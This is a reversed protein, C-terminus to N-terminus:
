AAPLYRRAERILEQVLKLYEPRRIYEHIRGPEVWAHDNVEKGDVRVPTNELAIGFIFAIRQGKITDPRFRRFSKPFDYQYVNGSTGLFRATDIGAEEHLERLAAQEVSEGQEMGGQPLQWADRKRPKHLLLVEFGTASTPRLLVISAAQRYTEPTM